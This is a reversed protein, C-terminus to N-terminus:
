KGTWTTEVQKATKKLENTSITSLSTIEQNKRARTVYIITSYAVFLV